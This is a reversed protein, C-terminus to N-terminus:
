LLNARDINDKNDLIAKIRELTFSEFRHILRSTRKNKLCFSLVAYHTKYYALGFDTLKCICEEEVYEERKLEWRRPTKCLFLHLSLMAYEFDDILIFKPTFWLEDDFFNKSLDSRYEQIIEQMIKMEAGNTLRYEEPIYPEKQERAFDSILRDWEKTSVCWSVLERLTNKCLLHYLWWILLILLFGLLGLINDWM